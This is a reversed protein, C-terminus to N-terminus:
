DHALWAREGRTPSLAQNECLYLGDQIVCARGDLLKELTMDEPQHGELIVDVIDPALFACRLIHNVYREHVGIEMAISRISKAEGSILRERWNHARAIAKIMDIHRCGLAPGQAKLKIIEQRVWEPKASKRGRAPVSLTKRRGYRHIHNCYFHRVLLTAACM